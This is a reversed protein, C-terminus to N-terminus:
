CDVPLELHREYIRDRHELLIPDLAGPRVPDRATYMARQAPPMPCKDDPLPELMVAFTAWYLDAVSLADGVLYDSGRARQEHLRKALLRMIEACRAAARAPPYDPSAYRAQLAAVVKRLPPPTADSTQLM